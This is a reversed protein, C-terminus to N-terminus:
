DQDNGEADKSNKVYDALENKAEAIQRQEDESFVVNVIDKLKMKRAVYEVDQMVNLVTVLAFCIKWMFCPLNIKLATLHSLVNDKNLEGTSANILEMTEFVDKLSKKVQLLDISFPPYHTTFEAYKEVDIQSYIDQFVIVSFLTFREKDDATQFKACIDSRIKVAKRLTLLNVVTYSCVSKLYNLSAKNRLLEKQKEARSAGFFWTFFAIAVPILVAGAAPIWIDRLQEYLSYGCFEKM